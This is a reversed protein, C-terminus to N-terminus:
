YCLTWDRAALVLHQSSIPHLSRPWSVGDLQLTRTLQGEPSYVTICAHNYSM